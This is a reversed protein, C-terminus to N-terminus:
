CFFSGRCQAIRLFLFLDTFALAAILAYLRTRKRQNKARLNVLERKAEETTIRMNWVDDHAGHLQHRQTHMQTLVNAATNEAEYNSKVTDELANTQQEAYTTGPPVYSGSGQQYSNFRNNLGGSDSSPGDNRSSGFM